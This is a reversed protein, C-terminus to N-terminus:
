GECRSTAGPSAAARPGGHARLWPRRFLFMVAFGGPGVLTAHLVDNGALRPSATRDEPEGMAFEFSRPASEILAERDRSWPAVIRVGISDLLRVVGPREARVECLMSQILKIRGPLGVGSAVSRALSSADRLRRSLLRGAHAM